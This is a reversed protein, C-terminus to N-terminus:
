SLCLVNSVNRQVNQFLIGCLFTVNQIKQRQLVQVVNFKQLHKFLNKQEKVNKSKCHLCNEYRKTSTENFNELNELTGSKDM